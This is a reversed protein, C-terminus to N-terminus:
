LFPIETGETIPTSAPPEVPQEAPQEPQNIEPPLSPLADGADQNGGAGPEPASEAGDQNGYNPILMGATNLQDKFLDGTVMDQMLQDLEDQSGALVENSIIMMEVRRNRQRGEPTANDAIPYWKGYGQSMLKQGSLGAQDEMYKIVTNARASSLDWDSVKNYNPGPNATHGNIRTMLIQDNVSMLCKGLFELIPASEAKLNASDPEFFISDQFRIYVSNDGGKEVTVTSQMNNEEVYASIYKYLEEFTKPLTLEVDIKVDDPSADGKNQAIDNGEGEPALILQQSENGRSTFSRVLLEWKEENVSSMAFLMVFFCMLLTVLDGYTDMWNYGGGEDRQKKAM